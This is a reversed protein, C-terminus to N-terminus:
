YNKIIGLTYPINGYDGYNGNLVGQILVECKNIDTIEMLENNGSRIIEGHSVQDTWIESTQSLNSKAAWKEKVFTWNAGPDTASWLEFYRSIDEVIMYYKGDAKNKYVHPAEFTNTAIVVPDSWGYPFEAVTTRRRKITFSGDQASYFCYVYKSDSICTFDIGDRFGMSKGAAWGNVNSIDLNTSFTAGSGSQYILYWKAKGEFWFVQPACFYGGGNLSTILTRPSATKLENITSASTYGTRWLGGAGADRGTYFLHYKGNAYVISPDKVALADFLGASGNLFCRNYTKWEPSTNLVYTNNTGPSPTGGNKKSCNLFFMLVIAFFVSLLFRM